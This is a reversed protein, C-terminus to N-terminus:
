RPQAIPMGPHTAAIVGRRRHAFTACRDAIITIQM